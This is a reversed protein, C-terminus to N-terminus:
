DEPTYPLVAPKTELWAVARESEQRIADLVSNPWRTKRAPAVDDIEEDSLRVLNSVFDSEVDEVTEPTIVVEVWGRIASEVSDALSNEFAALHSRGDIDWITCKHTKFNAMLLRGVVRRQQAIRFRDRLDNLQDFHPRRISMQTILRPETPQRLTHEESVSITEVGYREYLQQMPLLANIVSTDFGRPLSPQIETTPEEDNSTFVRLGNVLAQLAIISESDPGLTKLAPALVLQASGERLGVLRFESLQQVQSSMRGRAKKGHLVLTIRQVAKQISGSLVALAGLSIEGPTIGPGEVTILITPQGSAPTPDLTM